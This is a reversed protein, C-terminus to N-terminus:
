ATLRRPRATWFQDAYASNADVEVNSDFDSADLFASVCFTDFSDTVLSRRARLAQLGWLNASGEMRVQWMYEQGQQQMDSIDARIAFGNDTFVKLMSQLRSQLEAASATSALPAPCNFQEDRFGERLKQYVKRGVELQLQKPLKKNDALFADRRVVRNPREFPDGECSECYEQTPM